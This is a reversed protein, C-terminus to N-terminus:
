AISRRAEDREDDIISDDVTQSSYKKDTWRRGVYAGLTPGLLAGIVSADPSGLTYKGTALEVSLGSLLVRVAVIMFGVFAMTLVADPKGDTNTMWKFKM